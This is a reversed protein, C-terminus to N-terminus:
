YLPPLPPLQGGVNQCFLLLRRAAAARRMVVQGGVKLFSNLDRGTVAISSSDVAQVTLSTTKIVPLKRMKSNHRTSHM